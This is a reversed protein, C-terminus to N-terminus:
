WRSSKDEIAGHLIWSGRKARGESCVLDWSFQGRKLSIWSINKMSSLSFVKHNWPNIHFSSSLNEHGVHFWQLKWRLGHFLGKNWCKLCQFLHNNWPGHFKILRIEHHPPCSIIWEANWTSEHFKSLSNWTCYARRFKNDNTEHLDIFNSLSPKM